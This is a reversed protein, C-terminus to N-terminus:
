HRTPTAAGAAAAASVHWNAGHERAWQVMELHGGVAANGLVIEDDWPCPPDAARLCQLAALQGAQAAASPADPGFPFGRERLWALSEVHGNLAAYM